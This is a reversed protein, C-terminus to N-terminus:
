GIQFEIIERGSVLVNDIRLWAGVRDEGDERFQDGVRYLNLFHPNEFRPGSDTWLATLLDASQDRCLLVSKIV